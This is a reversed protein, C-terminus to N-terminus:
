QSVVTQETQQKAQRRERIKRFQERARKMRETCCNCSKRTSDAVTDPTSIGASSTRVPTQQSPAERTRMPLTETAYGIFCALIAVIALLAMGLVFHEDKMTAGENMNMFTNLTELM